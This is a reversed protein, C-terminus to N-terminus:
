QRTFDTAFLRRFSTRSMIGDEGPAKLRVSARAHWHLAGPSFIVATPMNRNSKTRQLLFRNSGANM